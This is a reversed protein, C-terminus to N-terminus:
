HVYGIQFIFNVDFQTDNKDLRYPYGVELFFGGINISWSAGVGYYTGTIGHATLGLLSIESLYDHGRSLVYSLNAQIGIFGGATGGAIRVGFSNWSYGCVLNLIGPSGVTGGFCLEHYLYPSTDRVSTQYMTLSDANNKEIRSTDQGFSVHPLPLCAIILVLLRM